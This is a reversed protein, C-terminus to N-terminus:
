HESGSVPRDELPYLQDIAFGAEAILARADMCEQRFFELDGESHSLTLESEVVHFALARCLRGILDRRDSM